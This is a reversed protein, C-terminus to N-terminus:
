KCIFFGETRCMFDGLLFNNYFDNILIVWPFVLACLFNSVSLNLIFKNIPNRTLKTQSLIRIVALNGVIATLAIPIVAASKIAIEVDGVRYWIKAPFCFDSSNFVSEDHYDPDDDKDVSFAQFTGNEPLDTCSMTSVSHHVDLSVLLELLPAPWHPIM